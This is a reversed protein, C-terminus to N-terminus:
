GLRKQLRLVRRQAAVTPEATDSNRAHALARAPDKLQHEYLKALELHVAPAQHPDAASLGAAERFAGLSEEIQGLRKYFRGLMRLASLMVTDHRARYVARKAFMLARQRSGNLWALRALSACVRADAHDVEAGYLQALRACIAALAALDDANHEVVAQLGAGTGGRLYAFYREPILAGDIDDHRVFGLEAQEVSVLKVPTLAAGWGRRAGHLADLHPPLEPTTIRNMLFRTRLLPWDFSKGNYTVICSAQQLRQKLHHLLPAEAGLSPLVLQELRLAGDVFLGLGILFAVTGTGGALGTTETDVFLAKSMDINSLAPDRAVAALDATRVDLFDAVPMEGHRHDVSYTRRAMRVAGWPSDVDEGPLAGLDGPKRRSKSRKRKKPRQQGIKALRGRLRTIRERQDADDALPDARQLRDKLRL